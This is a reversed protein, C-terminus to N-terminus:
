SIIDLNLHRATLAITHNGPGSKSKFALWCKWFCIIKNSEYTLAGSGLQIEICIFVNLTLEFAFALNYLKFNVQTAKLHSHIILHFFCYIMLGTQTMRIIISIGKIYWCEVWSSCFLLAGLKFSCVHMPGVHTCAYTRVHTWAYPRCAYMRVHTCAYMRVHTCAYMRVHTCAYMRVHTCAYMRVHTCAYMRVHTCAYMRVHTCAYMRVHTCAYMRVHTCAYMRVHTCAYMRVHTCAYMHMCAYPRCAYMRVHTCAYMRVHTCAYM